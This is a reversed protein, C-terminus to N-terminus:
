YYYLYKDINIHNKESIVSTAYTTFLFCHDSTKRDMQGDTQRDMQIDAQRDTHRHTHRDSQNDTWKADQMYEFQGM